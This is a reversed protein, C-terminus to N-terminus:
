HIKIKKGTNSSEYIGLILDVANKGDYVDSVLAVNTLVSDVFNSIQKKHHIYDFSTPNNHNDNKDVKIFKPDITVGEVDWKVIYSGEIVVTCKTGSIEFRRPYGPTVCTTGEIVGVAGCEYEVLAIAADEVDIDRDLTKCIGTVSKAPGVLYQILDIGHIGQNMLAGGGDFEWTGRWDASAYYEKSRFFKMYTDAVLIKGLQGSEIAEKVKMIGSSFRSQSIATLKVKNRTVAGVVADLQPRTIALPKEVIVHKGANAAKVAVEAHNGSITCVSVADVEDSALLEELSAFAKCNYEKAFAEAAESRMDYAGILNANEIEAISLAHRKSIIGCGVIAINVNNKM